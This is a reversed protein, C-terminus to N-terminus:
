LNLINFPPRVHFTVAESVGLSEKGVGEFGKDKRGENLM